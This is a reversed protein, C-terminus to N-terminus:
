KETLSDSIAPLSRTNIDILLTVASGYKPTSSLWWNTILISRPKPSTLGFRNDIPLRPKCRYMLYYTNFDKTNNKTCNYAHVLTHLYDKWQQKDNSEFTGIMIIVMQNFRECQGNTEPHYSTTQLKYIHALKCLVKIMQSEFNHGQDM